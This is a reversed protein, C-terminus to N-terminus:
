VESAPERAGEDLTLKQIEGGVSSVTFIEEEKSRQSLAYEHRNPRDPGKVDLLWEEDESDDVFDEADDESMPAKKASVSALGTSELPKKDVSVSDSSSRSERPMWVDSVRPHGTSSSAAVSSLNSSSAVPGSSSPTGAVIHTSDTTPYVVFHRREDDGPGDDSGAGDFDSIANPVRTIKSPLIKIAITFLVDHSTKIYVYDDKTHNSTSMQGGFATLWDQVDWELGRTTIVAPEKMPIIGVHKGLWSSKVMIKHRGAKLLMTINKSSLLFMRGQRYAPDEQFLYLHHLTSLGQDLRGGVGGIVVIDRDHGSLPKAAVQVRDQDTQAASIDLRCIQAREKRCNLYARQSQADWRRLFSVAKHFDTSYQDAERILQAGQRQWYRKPTEKISDLDGIIIDVDLAYPNDDHDRQAWEPFTREYVRNAGGDAAVVINSNNWVRKYVPSPLSLKQNLVVIGFDGHEKGVVQSLFIHGPCWRTLPM